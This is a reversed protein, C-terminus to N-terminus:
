KGRSLGVEAAVRHSKAWEYEEPTNVNRFIDATFGASLLEVESLFRTPVYSFIQGVKYRGAQLASEVVPLVERRYVACLPEPRGNFRPVTAFEQTAGAQDVLWRLFDAKMMPLDVSLILNLETVSACLAAHIGGLPGCGRFRDEVVEGFAAYRVADGVIVPSASIERANRLAISLFTEDGVNLLAKDSGM